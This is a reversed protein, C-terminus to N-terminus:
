CEAEAMIRCISDPQGQALVVRLRALLDAFLGAIMGTNGRYYGTVLSQNWEQQPGQGALDVQIAMARLTQAHGHSEQISFDRPHRLTKRPISGMVKSLTSSNPFRDDAGLLEQGLGVAVLSAVALFLCLGHASSM